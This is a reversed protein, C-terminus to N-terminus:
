AKECVDKLRRELAHVLKWYSNAEGSKLGHHHGYESIHLGCKECTVDVVGLNGEYYFSGSVLEMEQGCLPCKYGSKVYLTSM